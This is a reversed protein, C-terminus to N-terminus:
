RRKKKKIEQYYIIMLGAKPRVVAVDQAQLLLPDYGKTASMCHFNQETHERVHFLKVPSQRILVGVGFNPM